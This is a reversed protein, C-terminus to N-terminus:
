FTYTVGTWLIGTWSKDVMPSDKVEDSLRVYRGMAFANWQPSIQYTASLEVYPTFSDDPHYSDLGSRRSEDSSVGYYYRNQNKSNWTVGVAPTLSWNQQKFRYLYAVDGVLGNSNDLTDGTFLTRLTGWDANYSYGLGAMLTARRKNLREMQDNDSDSPSFHLPSYLANISLQHTPDKWLYYGAMLSRFFFKDSEYNVVPVPYVRDQESRYPNPSVLASAGLSFTDAAALQSFLTGAMLPLLALRSIKM